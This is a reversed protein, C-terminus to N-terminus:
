DEIKPALYFRIYNESEDCGKKDLSQHFRM